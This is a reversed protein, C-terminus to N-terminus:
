LADLKTEGRSNSGCFTERVAALDRQKSPHLWVLLKGRQHMLDGVFYQMTAASARQGGHLDAFCLGFRPRQPKGIPRVESRFRM